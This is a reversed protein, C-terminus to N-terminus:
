GERKPPDVLEVQLIMNQQSQRNDREFLGAHRMAMELAEIKPWLKVRKPTGDPWLEISAIAARIDEDLDAVPILRGEADFLRGIDAYAVRAVERLTRVTELAAAAGRQRAATALEGSATLEALFRHAASRASRGKGYGVAVAAAAAKHGNALYAECFETRKQARGRSPRQPQRPRRPKQAGDPADQPASRRASQDSPESDSARSAVAPQPVHAM